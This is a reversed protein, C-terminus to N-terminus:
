FYFFSLVWSFFSMVAVEIPHNKEWGYNYGIGYGDKYDTKDFNGPVEIQDRHTQPKESIADNYGAKYGAVQSENGDFGSLENLVQDESSGEQTVNGETQVVSQPAAEAKVPHAMLLTTGLLALCLTALNLFRKSKTKM